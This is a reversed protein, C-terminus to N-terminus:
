YKFFNLFIGIKVPVALDLVKEGFKFSSPRPSLIAKVTMRRGALMSQSVSENM